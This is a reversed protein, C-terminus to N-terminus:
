YYFNTSITKCIGLIDNGARYFRYGKLPQVNIALWQHQLRYAPPIRSLNDDIRHKVHPLIESSEYLTEERLKGEKFLNDYIEPRWHKSWSALYRKASFGPRIKEELGKTTNKNKFFKLYALTNERKIGGGSSFTDIDISNDSPDGFTLISTRLENITKIPTKEKLEVNPSSIESNTNVNELSNIL